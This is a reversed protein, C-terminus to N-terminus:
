QTQQLGQAPKYCSAPRVPPALLGKEGASRVSPHAMSQKRWLSFICSADQLDSIGTHNQIKNKQM